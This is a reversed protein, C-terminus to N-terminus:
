LYYFYNSQSKKLPFIRLGSGQLEMMLTTELKVKGSYSIGM